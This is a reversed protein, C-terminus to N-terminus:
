DNHQQSPVFDLPAGAPVPPERQVSAQYGVLLRNFHTATWSHLYPLNLPEREQPDASTLRRSRM